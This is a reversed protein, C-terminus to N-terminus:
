LEDMEASYVLVRLFLFLSALYFVFLLLSLRSNLRKVREIERSLRCAECHEPCHDIHTCDDISERGQSAVM